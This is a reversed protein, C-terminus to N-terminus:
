TAASCVETPGTQDATVSLPALTRPLAFSFRRRPSRKSPCVGYASGAHFLAPLGLSPPFRRSPLWVRLASPPPCAFGAHVPGRAASTGLPVFAWPLTHSYCRHQAATAGTELRHPQMADDPCSGPPRRFGALPACASILGDAQSPRSPLGGPRAALCRRIPIASGMFAIGAPRVSSQASLWAWSPGIRPPSM